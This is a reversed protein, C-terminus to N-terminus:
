VRAVSRMTVVPSFSRSCTIRSVPQRPRDRPKWESRCRGRGSGGPRACHRACAGDSQGGSPESRRCRRWAACSSPADSGTRPPRPSPARAVHQTTITPSPGCRSAARLREGRLEAEGVRTRKAPLWASTAGHICAKSTNQRGDYALSPTGCASICAIAHPSGTTSWGRPCCRLSRSRHWSRRARGARLHRVRQSGRELAQQAIGLSACSAPAVHLRPACPLAEALLVHDLAHDRHEACRRSGTPSRVRVRAITTECARVARRPGRAAVLEARVPTRRMRM